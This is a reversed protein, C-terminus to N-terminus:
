AGKTSDYYQVKKAHMPCASIPRIRTGAPTIRLTFVIFAYRSALTRGIAAYRTEATAARTPIVVPTAAFVSEIDERSLGHKACKPWNGANWEFDLFQM